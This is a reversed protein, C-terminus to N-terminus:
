PKTEMRERALRVTVAQAKAAREQRRREVWAAARRYAAAEARTRARGGLAKGAHSVAAYGSM